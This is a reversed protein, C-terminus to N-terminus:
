HSAHSYSYISHLGLEAPGPGALAPIPTEMVYQKQSSDMSKLTQLAEFADM